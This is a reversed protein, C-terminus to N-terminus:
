GSAPLEVDVCSEGFEGGGLTSAEIRGGPPVTGDVRLAVVFPGSEELEHNVASMCVHSKPSGPVPAVKIYGPTLDSVPARRVEYTVTYDGPHTGDESLSRATHTGLGTNELSIQQYVLGMYDSNNYSEGDWEEMDFQVMYHQGSYVAFGLEPSTDQGWMEGGSGPIVSNLAATDGRGASFLIGTRALPEGFSAVSRPLADPVGAPTSSVCLPQGDSKCRWIGAFFRMEGDGSLIGDRDDHIKVNKVVIQLRASPKTPEAAVGVPVPAGLSSALLGGVLALSLPWRRTRTLHSLLYGAASLARLAILITINMQNRRLSVGDLLVSTPPVFRHNAIHHCPVVTRGCVRRHRRM